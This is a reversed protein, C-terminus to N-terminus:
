LLAGVPAAVTTDAMRWCRVGLSTRGSGSGAGAFLAGSAGLTPSSLGPAARPAELLDKDGTVLVGAEAALASAVVILDDRDRLELDPLEKPRPQVHHARLLAEVEDIVSEPLRIKRRLNRRLETLVPESTVLEHHTLIHRLVDACLGRTAFAAVLVNTDLFVRL